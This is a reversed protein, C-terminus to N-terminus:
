SEWFQVGSCLPVPHPVKQITYDAGSIVVKNEYINIATVATGLFYPCAPDECVWGARMHGGRTDFTMKGSTTTHEAREVEPIRGSVDNSAYPCIRWCYRKRGHAKRNLVPAKTM